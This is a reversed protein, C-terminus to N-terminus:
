KNQLFQAVEQELTPYIEETMVLDWWPITMRNKFWTLQRKAYQRSHQQIKEICSELSQTGEIYSFLEKYGIGQAAQSTPIQQEYLWKAEELLGQKMMLLVRENIRAYLTPRETELGILYADYLPEPKEVATQYASFPQGTTHYVELARIVRKQNNPHIKEAALPDIAKLQEWLYLVDNEAAEKELQQRYAVDKDNTGGLSFDYLLAEIYLGTGGVIIPVKGAAIIQDISARAQKQFDSVTYPQTIPICDVLYHKAMAREALTAKATGINLHEYIQMSDGSIIEGNFKQALQISLATKGVATPGVIVIIKKKM